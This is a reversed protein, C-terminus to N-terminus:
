RRAAPREPFDPWGDRHAQWWALADERSRLETGALRSLSGLLVSEVWSTQYTADLVRADLIVGEQLTGVDPNAINSAQAIEVDYDRVYSVQRTFAVFQRASSGHSLLKKVVYPAARTDGLLAIAEAANAVIRPNSSGLARVFPVATDDNGLSAAALTAERRVGADVDRAASLLLARLAAEDGLRGLLRAAARRVAPDKEYLVALAAALVRDPAVGALAVDAARAVAGEQALARVWGRLTADSAPDKSRAALAAASAAEVEAPLMWRGGFLVLGKHRNAEATSVWAGDVKQQGLARRAAPHDPEAAVVRGYAERALDPLGAGEAELALRYWAAVDGAVLTAARAALAARPGDGPKVGVVREAPLRV